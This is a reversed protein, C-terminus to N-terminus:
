RELIPKIYPALTKAILEHGEDWPHFCDTLYPYRSKNEKRNHHIMSHKRHFTLDPIDERLWRDTIIDLLSNNPKDGEIWVDKMKGQLYHIPMIKNQYDVMNMHYITDISTSMLLPIDFDQCLMRLGHIATESLYRQAVPSRGEPTYKTRDADRRSTAGILYHRQDFDLIKDDNSFIAPHIEFFRKVDTWVVLFAVDSTNNKQIWRMAENAIAVNGSGFKGMNVVEVGLEKELYYCMNYETIMLHPDKRQGEVYSDGFVVLRRLGSM